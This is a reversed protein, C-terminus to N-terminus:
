YTILEIQNSIEISVRKQKRKLWLAIAGAVATGSSTLPEPVSVGSIPNGEVVFRANNLFGSTRWIGHFPEGGSSICCSYDFYTEGPLASNNTPIFGEKLFEGGTAGFLGGGFVLGYTGPKLTVSLPTSIDSSPYTPSFTTSALVEGPAFPEGQPLADPNNLEVIAAFLTKSPDFIGLHGGVATVEFTTDLDFKWGPFQAANNIPSFSIEYGGTEGTSGLSASELTVAQVASVAGLSVLSAGATSAILNTILNM